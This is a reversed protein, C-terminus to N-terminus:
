NKSFEVTVAELSLERMRRELATIRREHEILMAMHGDVRRSLHAITQAQLAIMARLFAVLALEDDSM